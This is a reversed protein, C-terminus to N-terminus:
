EKEKANLNMEENCAKCCPLIWDTTYMDAPEGCFVCTDWSLKEYKDLVANIKDHFPWPYALYVCLTGFKEKIQLVAFESKQEDTFSDYIIQIDRCFDDGFARAWGPPIEEDFDGIWPYKNKFTM